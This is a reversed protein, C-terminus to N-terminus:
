RTRAEAIQPREAVLREVAGGDLPLVQHKGAEVCWLAIM